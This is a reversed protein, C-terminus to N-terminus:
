DLALWLRLAAEVQELHAGRLSGIRATIKARPIAITKDVMVQSDQKLGTAKGPSVAIRFLPADELHTTILCVVVSAHTGNFLDSQVVIAPRPKGYDGPAACTVIDGRTIEMRVHGNAGDVTATELHDGWVAAIEEPYHSASRCSCHASLLVRDM